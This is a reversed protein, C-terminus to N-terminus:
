TPFKKDLAADAAADNAQLGATLAAIERKADDATIHGAAAGDVADFIGSIADAVDSAASTAPDKVLAKIQAMAFAVLQLIEAASM